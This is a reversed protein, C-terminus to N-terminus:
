ILKIPVVIDGLNIQLTGSFHKAPNSYAVEKENPILGTHRFILPHCACQASRECAARVCHQFIFACLRSRSIKDDRERERRLSHHSTGDPFHRGRHETSSFEAQPGTSTSTSTARYKSHPGTSLGRASCHLHSSAKQLMRHQVTWSTRRNTM